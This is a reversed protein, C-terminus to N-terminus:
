RGGLLDTKSFSLSAKGNLYKKCLIRALSCTVTPKDSSEKRLSRRVEQESIRNTSHATNNKMNDVDHFSSGIDAIRSRISSVCKINLVVNDEVFNFSVSMFGHIGRRCFQHVLNFVILRLLPNSDFFFPKKCYIYRPSRQGILADMIGFLVLFYSHADFFSGCSDYKILLDIDSENAHFALKLSVQLNIIEFCSAQCLDIHGEIGLSITQSLHFCLGNSASELKHMLFSTEKRLLNGGLKRNLKSDMHVRHHQRLQSQLSFEWLLLVTFIVGLVHHTIHFNFCWDYLNWIAFFIIFNPFRMDIGLQFLMIHLLFVLSFITAVLWHVPYRAEAEIVCYRHLGLAISIFELFITRLGQTGQIMLSHLRSGSIYFLLMSGKWLFISYAAIRAIKDQINGVGSINTGYSNSFVNDPGFIMQCYVLFVMFGVIPM